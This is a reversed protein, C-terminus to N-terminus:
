TARRWGASSNRCYRWHATPRSRGARLSTISWPLSMAASSTTSPGAVGRPCCSTGFSTSPRGSPTRARGGSRTNEIFDNALREVTDAAVEAATQTATAKAALKLAAPDKGVAVEHLAAAAATRAAALSLTSDLTLKAPRKDPRRFRVCWGRAGSPQIVCRLGTSGDPVEYRAARPKLNAVALATLRKAVNSRRSRRTVFDATQRHRGSDPLTPYSHRYLLSFRAYSTSFTAEHRGKDRQRRHDRVRSTPNRWLLRSASLCMATQDGPSFSTPLESSPEAASSSRACRVPQDTNPCYLTWRETMRPSSGLVWYSAPIM